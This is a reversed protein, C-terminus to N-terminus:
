LNDDALVYVVTSSMYVVIFPLVIPVVVDTVFVVVSDPNVVGDVYLMYASTYSTAPLLLRLGLEPSILM